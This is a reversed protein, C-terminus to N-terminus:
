RSWSILNVRKAFCSVLRFKKGTERFKAFHWSIERFLNQRFKAFNRGLDNRSIEYCKICLVFKWLLFQIIYYREYSGTTM